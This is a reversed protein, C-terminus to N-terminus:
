PWGYVRNLFDVLLIEAINEGTEIFPRGPPLMSGKVTHEKGEDRGEGAFGPM